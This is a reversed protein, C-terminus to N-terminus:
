RLQPRCFQKNQLKGIGDGVGEGVGVGVAVGEGVGDGLGEGVGEGVGLGVCLGLGVGVGVGVGEGVGGVGVAVVVAGVPPSFNLTPGTTLNLGSFSTAHGLSSPSISSYIDFGESLSTV